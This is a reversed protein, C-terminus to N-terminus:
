LYAPNHHLSLLAPEEGLTGGSESHCRNKSEAKIKEHKPKRPNPKGLRPRKKLSQLGARTQIAALSRDWKECFFRSTPVRTRKELGRVVPMKVELAIEKV